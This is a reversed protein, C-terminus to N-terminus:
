EVIDKLGCSEKAKRQMLLAFGRTKRVELCTTSVAGFDLDGIEIAPVDLMAAIKWLVGIDVANLGALLVYNIHKLVRIFTAVETFDGGSM